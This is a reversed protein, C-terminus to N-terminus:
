SRTLAVDFGAEIASNNVGNSLVRIRIDTRPAVDIGFTIYENLYGGEAVGAARRTRWAGGSARTQLALTAYAANIAGISGYWRLIVGGSFSVGDANQDPVTYIAMLTQGAGTVIGAYKNAPVGDTITGTGIWIDGANTTGSGATAVWARYVRLLSTPITVGTQGNMSVTQTVEDYNTDLGM